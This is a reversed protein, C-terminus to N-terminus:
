HLRIREAASQLVLSRYLLAFGQMALLYYNGSGFAFGHAMQLLEPNGEELEAIAARTFVEAGNQDIEAVLMARTKASVRPLTLMPAAGAAAPTPLRVALLRYFMAFGMMARAPSGLDAACKAAMNLLEPNDKELHEIIEEVCVDPGRTDFERAVLERAKETVRPLLSM